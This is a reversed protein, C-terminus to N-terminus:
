FIWNWSRSFSEWLSHSAPYSLKYLLPPIWPTSFLLSHVLFERPAYVLLAVIPKNMWGDKLTDRTHEASQWINHLYLHDILSGTRKSGRKSGWGWLSRCAAKKPLVPWLCQGVERSLALMLKIGELVWGDLRLDSLVWLWPFDSDLALRESTSIM